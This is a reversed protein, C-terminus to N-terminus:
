DWSVTNRQCMSSERYDDLWARRGVRIGAVYVTKGHKGSPNSAAKVTILVKLGVPM